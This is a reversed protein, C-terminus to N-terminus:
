DEDVPVGTPKKKDPKMMAWIVLGTIVVLFIIVLDQTSINFGPWIFTPTASGASGAAGFLSPFFASGGSSLFVSVGLVLLILIFFRGWHKSAKPFKQGPHFSTWGVHLVIAVVILTLVLVLTQSFFSAFFATLTVGAPTYVMVFFSAGLSVLLYTIRAVRDTTDGFVKSKVLLAYLIGFFMLFPLYFDFVGFAQASAIVEALGVM